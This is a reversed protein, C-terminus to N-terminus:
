CSGASSERYAQYAQVAVLSNAAVLRGRQVWWEAVPPDSGLLPVCTAATPPRAHPASQIWVAATAICSGYVARAPPWHGLSAPETM